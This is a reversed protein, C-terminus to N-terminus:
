KDKDDIKDKPSGPDGQGVKKKNEGGDTTTKVPPAPAPIEEEEFGGGQQGPPTYGVEGPLINGDEDYTPEDKEEEERQKRLMEIEEDTQNLVNKRVYEKSFYTGILEQMSIVVEVRDNLVQIKKLEAFHSDEVFIFKFQNELDNWDQESIINKQVCQVKLMPLFIGKAFRKRLRDIFKAFKVEERTIESDKALTFLSESEMRGNPVNLSDYLKKRFYIIDELQGLNEGGQLTSIETGKGGERRPLWFDEMMSMANKHDNIEGTTTNYVVKNRYQNMISTLYQEAANKPLNGVDIYFIRREPARTVRYIVIADEIMNLQNAPKIAKHLHSQVLKDEKCYLGSTVFIVSDTTFKIVNKTGMTVEAVDGFAYEPAHLFYEDINKITGDMPDKEIERVKKIFLSDVHTLEGIGDRENDKMVITFFIRGDVYWHKFYDYGNQDFEMLSLLYTFEDIVKKKTGESIGKVEDLSLKVPYPEVDDFTIADNVIESVAKDVETYLAVQRYRKILDIEKKPLINGEYLHVFRGGGPTFTVIDRSGDTPETYTVKNKLLKDPKKSTGLQVGFLNIEM